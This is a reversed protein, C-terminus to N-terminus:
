RRRSRGPHRVGQRGRRQPDPRRGHAQGVLGRRHDLPNPGMQARVSLPLSLVRRPGFRPKIWEWEILDCFFGRISDMRQAKGAASLPQGWRSRNRNNPAWQGHVATVTDAVYEAAMDRTWLWDQWTVLLDVQHDPWKSWQADSGDPHSGM